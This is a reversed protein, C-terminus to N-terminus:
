CRVRYHQYTAQTPIRDWRPPRKFGRVYARLGQTMASSGLPHYSDLFNMLDDYQDKTLQLEGAGTNTAAPIVAFQYPDSFDNLSFTAVVAVAGAASGQFVKAAIGPKDSPDPLATALNAQAPCAAEAGWDLRGKVALEPRISVETLANLGVEFYAANPDSNSLLNPPPGAAPYSAMYVSDNGPNNDTTRHQIFGFGAQIAYGAFRDAGLAPHRALIARGVGLLTPDNPTYGGIVQPAGVVGDAALAALLATLATALAPQVQNSIGPAFTVRPDAFTQLMAATFGPDPPGAAAFETAMLMGTGSIRANQWLRRLPGATIEFRNGAPVSLYVSAPYRRREIYSFGALFALAGLRSATLAASSPAVVLGRGVRQLNTAGADYASLVTIRPAGPERAALTALNLLATELALQMQHPAPASPTVPAYDITTSNSTVLYDIRFDADPAGSMALETPNSSGDGGLIGCGDLTQPAIIIPLSGVLVTVSDTATVTCRVAITAVGAATGTFSIANATTSSSLVGNAAGSPLLSWQLSATAPPVVVFRKIAITVPQNNLPIIQRGTSDTGPNTGSGFDTASLQLDDGPVAVLRLTTGATPYFVFPVGSEFALAALLGLNFGPGATGLGVTLALGLNDNTTAAVVGTSPAIYASQIVLISAPSVQSLRAALRELMLATALVMSRSSAPSFQYNTGDPESLLTADGAALPTATSADPEIAPLTGDSAISQGPSLSGPIVRLWRSACFRTSDTEDVDFQVLDSPPDGSGLMLGAIDAQAPDSLTLAQVGRRIMPYTPPRYPRFIALRQRYRTDSEGLVPAFTRRATRSIRLEDIQGAFPANLAPCNGITIPGAAAPAALNVLPSQGVAVGDVYLQAVGVDRDVVGAIHHFAGDALGMNADVTVLTGATDGVIWRLNNPIARYPGLCLAWGAENGPPDGDRLATSRSAVIARAYDATTADANIFTEVTFSDDASFGFAADAPVLVSTPGSSPTLCPEYAATIGHNAYQTTFFSAPLGYWEGFYDIAEQASRGAAIFAAVTQSPNNSNTTDTPIFGYCATTVWGQLPGSSQDNVMVPQLTGDLGPESIAGQRYGFRAYPGTAVQTTGLAKNWTGNNLQTQFDQESACRTHPLADGPFELGNNFRAPRGRVAGHNIAYHTATDEDIWDDTEDLHYLGITHTDATYPQPNAGLVTAFDTRAVNSLRVEDVLGTLYPAGNLDTGIGIAAGTDVVGLTGLPASAVAVGNLLVTAQQAVPDVVGAVHFWGTPLVTTVAARVVNGAIDALTFALVNNGGGAPPEFTLAWGPPPPPTPFPAAPPKNNPRKAVFIVTQGAAPATTLNAFLEVTFGVTPDIAFAIADPIVIGGTTTIQCAQGFRGAVGRTAGLSIGPNDSTADLVPAVTDDFHWLGVTGTDNDLRYPAPLLRPVGLDQGIWDLSRGRATDLHRQGGVDRTMAAVARAEGSLSWLLRAGHGLLATLTWKDAGAAQGVGPVPRETLTQLVLSPDNPLGPIGFTMGALSGAPVVLTSTGAGAIGAYSIQLVAAEDLQDAKLTLSYSTVVDQAQLGYTALFAFFNYSLVASVGAVAPSLPLEQTAVARAYPATAYRLTIDFPDAVAANM